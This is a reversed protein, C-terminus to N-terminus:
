RVGWLSKATTTEDVADLDLDFDDVYLSSIPPGSGGRQWGCEARRACLVRRWGGEIDMAAGGGPDSYVSMEEGRRRGERGGGERDGGGGAREGQTGKTEKGAGRGGGRREGGVFGGGAVAISAAQM